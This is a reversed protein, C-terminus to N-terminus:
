TSGGSSERLFDAFLRTGSSLASGELAYLEVPLPPITGSLDTWVLDKPIPMGEIVPVLATGFGGEAFRVLAQASPLELSAEFPGLWKEAYDRIEIGREFALIPGAPFTGPSDAARGGGERAAFFFRLTSIAESIIRPRERLLWGIGLDAQGNVLAEQIGEGSRNLLSIQVLPYRAQFRRLVEPLLNEIASLGAAITVRGRPQGDREAVERELAEFEELIRQAGPLLRRGMDTLVLTARGRDFLPGGLEDELKKIQASVAPQSRGLAESARTFSGKRAIERFCTLAFREM